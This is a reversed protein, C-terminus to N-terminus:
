PRRLNKKTILRTQHSQMPLRELASNNIRRQACTIMPRHKQQLTPFTHNPRNYLITTLRPKLNLFKRLPNRNRWGAITNDNSGSITSQQKPPLWSPSVVARDLKRRQSVSLIRSLESHDNALLEAYLHNFNTPAVIEIWECRQGDV